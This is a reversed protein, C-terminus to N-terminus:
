GDRFTVEAVWRCSPNRRPSVEAGRSLGQSLPLLLVRPHELGSNSECCWGGNGWLDQSRERRSDWPVVQRTEGVAGAM